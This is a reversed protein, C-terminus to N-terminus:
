IASLLANTYPDLCLGEWDEAQGAFHGLDSGDLDTVVPAKEKLGPPLIDATEFTKIPDPAPAPKPKIPSGLSGLSDLPLDPTSKM